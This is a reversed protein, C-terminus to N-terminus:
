FIRSDHHIPTSIKGHHIIVDYKPVNKLIHYIINTNHSALIVTVLISLM